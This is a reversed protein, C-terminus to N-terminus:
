KLYYRRNKKLNQEVTLLDDNLVGSAKVREVPLSRMKLADIIHMMIEDISQARTLVIRAKVDDVASRINGLTLTGLAVHIKILPESIIEPAVAIAPENSILGNAICMGEAISLPRPTFLVGDFRSPRTTVVIIRSPDKLFEAIMSPLAVNDDFLNAFIVFITTRKKARMDRRMKEARSLLFRGYEADSMHFEFKTQNLESANPGIVNMVDFDDVNITEYHVAAALSQILAESSEDAQLIVVNNTAITRVLRALDSNQGLNVCENRAYALAEARVTKDIVRQKYNIVHEELLKLSKVDYGPKCGVITSMIVILCSIKKVACQDKYLM